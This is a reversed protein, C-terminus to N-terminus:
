SWALLSHTTSYRPGLAENRMYAVRGNRYEVPRFAKFGGTRLHTYVPFFRKRSFRRVTISVDPHADIATLEQRTVRTVVLLHGGPDVYITGPLLTRRDVAIPYFASASDEPVTRTNGSHVGWAIYKRAFANFRAVSDKFRGFRDTLNTREQYCRPGKRGTGRTCKRFRMPLGMKWAFYARLQYPLDACDGILVVRELEKAAPRDEGISLVNHLINRERRRTVRHLPRWGKRGDKRPRFLRSIWAAFLWEMERNWQRRVAWVGTPPASRSARVRGPLVDLTKLVVHDQMLSARVGHAGWKVGHVVFLAANPPGTWRSVPGRVDMGGGDVVRLVADAPLPDWSLAVFRLPEGPLASENLWTLYIDSPKQHMEGGNALFQRVLAEGSLELFRGETPQHSSCATLLFTLFAFAKFFLHKRQM